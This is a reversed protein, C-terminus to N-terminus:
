RFLNGVPRHLEAGYDPERLVPEGVEVFGRQKMVDARQADRDADQGFLAPEVRSFETLDFAVGQDALLDEPRQRAGLM